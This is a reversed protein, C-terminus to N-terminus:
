KTQSKPHSAGDGATKPKCALPKGAPAWCTGQHTGRSDTFACDGGAAVSKCAALAEAPPKRQGDGAPPQAAAALAGLATVVSTAARIVFLSPRM